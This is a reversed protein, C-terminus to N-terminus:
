PETKRAAQQPLLLPMLAADEADRAHVDDAPTWSMDPELRYSGEYADKLGAGWDEPSLMSFYREGELVGPASDRTSAAEVRRYLHYVQGVRKHFRCSARHLEAARQAGELVAQAQAQLTRIQEAIVRLKGAAVNGIALDAQQIERAVDVLDISPALRSLGYPSAREPGRHNPGDHRREDTMRVEYQARNRSEM